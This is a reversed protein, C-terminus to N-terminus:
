KSYKSLNIIYNAIHMNSIYNYEKQIKKFFDKKDKSITSDLSISSNSNLSYSNFDKLLEEYSINTSNAVFEFFNNQIEIYKNLFLNADNLREEDGLKIHRDLDAEFISIMYFLDNLKLNNNKLSEALSRYFSKTMTECISNKLNRALAIYEPDDIDLKGYVNKVFDENLRQIIDLSFMMNIIEKKQEDTKANFTKFLSDLNKSISTQLIQDVYNDDCLITSLSFSDIYGVYTQYTVAADGTYNMSMKEACGEFFWSWYLPNVTLDEFKISNGLSDKIKLTDICSKQLLHITEHSVIDKFIDQKNLKGVSSIMKPSLIMCGDTTVYANTLTLKKLIKLNGLVCKLEDLDEVKGNNIYQNIVDSIISCTQKLESDSLEEYFKSVNNNAKDEMYLKNNEKVVNYISETTIKELKYTHHTAKKNKVESYKKLAEDVNYYKEYDYTTEISDIYKVFEDYSTENLFVDANKYNYINNSNNNNNNNNYIEVQSVSEHSNYNNNKISQRYPFCGTLMLTASVAIVTIAVPIKILKIKKIKEKIKENVILKKMNM